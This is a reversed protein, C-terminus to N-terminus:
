GRGQVNGGFTGGGTLTGHHAAAAGLGLAHEAVVLV